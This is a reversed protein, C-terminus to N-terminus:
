LLRTTSLVCVVYIWFPFPSFKFPPTSVSRVLYRDAYSRDIHVPMVLVRSDPDLLNGGLQINLYSILLGSQSPYVCAGIELYSYSSRLYIWYFTHIDGMGM